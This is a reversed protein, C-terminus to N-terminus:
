RVRAALSGIFAVLKDHLMGVPSPCFRHHFLSAVKQSIITVAQQTWFSAAHRRAVYQFYLGALVLVRVGHLLLQLPLMFLVMLESIAAFAQNPPPHLNLTSPRSPEAPPSALVPM